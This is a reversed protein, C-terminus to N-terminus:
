GTSPLDKTLLPASPKEDKYIRLWNKFLPGLLYLSFSATNIYTVFFPKNYKQGAFINQSISPAISQNFVCKYVLYRAHAHMLATREWLDMMMGPVSPTISCQLSFILLM